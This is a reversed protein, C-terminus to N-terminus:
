LRIRREQTRYSKKLLNFAAKGEDNSIIAEGNLKM